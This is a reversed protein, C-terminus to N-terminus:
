DDETHSNPGSAHTRDTRRNRETQEIRYRVRSEELERADAAEPADTVGARNTPITRTM